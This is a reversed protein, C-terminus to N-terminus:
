QIVMAARRRDKAANLARRFPKAREAAGEAQRRAYQGIPGGDAILDLLSDMAGDEHTVLWFAVWYDATEPCHRERVTNVLGFLRPFKLGWGNMSEPHKTQLGDVVGAIAAARGDTNGWGKDQLDGLLEPLKLLDPAGHWFYILKAYEDRNM